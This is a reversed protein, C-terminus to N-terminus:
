NLGDVLISKLSKGKKLAEVSDTSFGNISIFIGRGYMKGEVKYAFQYLANSAVPKEQWKAEIIYHEGDHKVAGDIQEGVINFSFSETTTLGELVALDKM